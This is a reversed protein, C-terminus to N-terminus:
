ASAGDEPKSEDAEGPSSDRDRPSAKAEESWLLGVADSPSAALRDNLDRVADRAEISAASSRKIEKLEHRLDELEAFNKGAEYRQSGYKWCALVFLILILLSSALAIVAIAGASM